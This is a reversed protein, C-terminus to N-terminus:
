SSSKRALATRSDQLATELEGALPNSAGLVRRAIGEAEELTKVAARLEGLTANTDSYLPRAYIWQMRLTVDHSEGLVRRAVPLMKRMLSKVEQYRELGILSAAYNNAAILTNQNEEGKLKLWGSYVDRYMNLAEIRGLKQYTNALNGKVTLITEESAGLRREMSLEAERVSLAEEDRDAHSLGSGLLQM